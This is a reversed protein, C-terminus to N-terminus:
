VTETTRKKEEEENLVLEEEDDGEKGRKIESATAEQLGKPVAFQRTRGTGRRVRDLENEVEENVADKRAGRRM